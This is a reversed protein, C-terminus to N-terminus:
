EAVPNVRRVLQRAYGIACLLLFLAIALEFTWDLGSKRTLIHVGVTTTVGAVFSFTIILAALVSNPLTRKQSDTAM